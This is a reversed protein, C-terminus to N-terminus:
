VNLNPGQCHMDTPGIEEVWGLGAFRCSGVWGLWLGYGLRVGYLWYCVKRCLTSLKLIDCDHLSLKDPATNIM